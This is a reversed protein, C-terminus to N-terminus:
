LEAIYSEWINLVQKQDVIINGQSDEFGVTRIGNNDKWDLEKAKRDM